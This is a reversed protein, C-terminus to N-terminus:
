VMKPVHREQHANHANHLVRYIKQPEMHVKQVNRPTLTSDM